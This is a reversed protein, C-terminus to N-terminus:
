LRVGSYFVSNQIISVYV